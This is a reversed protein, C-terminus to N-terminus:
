KNLFQWPPRSAAWKPSRSHHRMGHLIASRKRRRLLSEHHKQSCSTTFNAASLMVCSPQWHRIRQRTAKLEWGGSTCVEEAFTTPAPCGPWRSYQRSCSPRRDRPLGRACTITTSVGHTPPAEHAGRNCKMRHGGLTSAVDLKRIPPRPDGGPDTNRLANGSRYYVTVYHVTCREYLVTNLVTCRECLYVYM